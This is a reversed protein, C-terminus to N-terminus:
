WACKAGGRMVCSSQCGSHKWTDWSVERAKLARLQAMSMERPVEFGISVAHGNDNKKLWAASANFAWAKSTARNFAYLKM